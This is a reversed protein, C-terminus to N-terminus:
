RDDCGPHEDCPNRAPAGHLCRHSGGRAGFNAILKLKEGAQGLMGGDIKDAICPVLVDARKMAAVLEERSMPRDNERLEVDFLECMRTEVAEPLRRTVVVSIQEGAM